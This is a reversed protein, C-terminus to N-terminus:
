EQWVLLNKWRIEDKESVGLTYGMNADSVAMVRYVRGAPDYQWSEDIVTVGGDAELRWLGEEDEGLAIVYEFSGDLLDDRFRGLKESRLTGAASGYCCYGSRGPGNMKGDRWEGGSYDYRPQGPNVVQFALNEGEPKGDAFEGCFVLSGKKLVIGEGELEDTWGSDGLLWAEGGLTEYFLSSLAERRVDMWVAAQAYEGTELFRRLSSVTLTEGLSPTRPATDQAASGAQPVAGAAIGEPVPRLQAAGWGTALGAAAMVAAALAPTKYKKLNEKSFDSKM